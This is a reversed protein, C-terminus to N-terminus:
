SSCLLGFYGLVGGEEQYKGRRGNSVCKLFPVTISTAFMKLKICKNTYTVTKRASHCDKSYISQKKEEANSTTQWEKVWIFQHNKIFMDVAINQCVWTELNLHNLYMSGRDSSESHFCLRFYRRAAWWSAMMADNRMVMVPWTMISM